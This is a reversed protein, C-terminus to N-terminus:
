FLPDVFEPRASGTYPLHERRAVGISRTKEVRVPRGSQISHIAREAVNVGGDVLLLM